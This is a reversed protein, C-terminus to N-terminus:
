GGGRALGVARERWKRAEEERNAAFWEDTVTPASARAALQGRQQRARWPEQRARLREVPGHALAALALLGVPAVTCHM